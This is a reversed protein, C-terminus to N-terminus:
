WWEIGCFTICSVFIRGWHYIRPHAFQGFFAEHEFLRRAPLALYMALAIQPRAFVEGLMLDLPQDLSRLVVAVAVPVGDHDKHGVPV